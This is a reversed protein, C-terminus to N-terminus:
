GDLGLAQLGRWAAPDKRFEYPIQPTQQDQLRNMAGRMISSLDYGHAIATSVVFNMVKEDGRALGQAFAEGLRSTQARAKERNAWLEESLEYSKAIRMPTLGVANLVQEPFELGTIIPQGNRIAKLAGDEVQAMSKYLIRPAFAYSALDWTRDSEFPNSNLGSQGSVYGLFKGVKAARDVVAANFM